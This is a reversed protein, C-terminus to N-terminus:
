KRWSRTSTSRAARRANNSITQQRAASCAAECVNCLLMEMRNAKAQHRTILASASAIRWARAMRYIINIARRGDPDRKAQRAKLAGYAGAAAVRAACAM